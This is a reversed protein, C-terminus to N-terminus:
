MWASSRRGGRRGVNGRTLTQGGDDPASRFASWRLPDARSDACFMLLSIEVSRFSEKDPTESFKQLHSIKEIIGKAKDKSINSTLSGLSGCRLHFEVTSSETGRDTNVHEDIAASASSSRKRYDM